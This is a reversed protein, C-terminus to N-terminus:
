PEDRPRRCDPCVEGLPSPRLETVALLTHGCVARYCGIPHEGLPDILHARWDLISRGWGAGEAM